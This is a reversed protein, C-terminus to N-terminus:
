FMFVLRIWMWILIALSPLFFIARIPMAGMFGNIFIHYLSHLVRFGVFWYALLVFYEDVRGTIYIVICVLYFFVPFEFLNIFNRDGQKILDPASSPVPIKMLESGSHGKDILVNKFRILTNFLFVVSTLTLMWFIPLFIETNM